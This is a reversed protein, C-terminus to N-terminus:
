WEQYAEWLDWVKDTLTSNSNEDSDEEDSPNIGHIIISDSMKDLKM